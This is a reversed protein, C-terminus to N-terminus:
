RLGPNMNTLPGLAAGYQGRALTRYPQYSRYVTGQPWGFYTYDGMQCDQQVCNARAMAEQTSLLQFLDANAVLQTAARASAKLPSTASSSLLYM